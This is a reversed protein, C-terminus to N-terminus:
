KLSFEQRRKTLSKYIDFDETYKKERKIIVFSLVIM